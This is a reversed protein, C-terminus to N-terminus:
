LLYKLLLGSATGLYLCNRSLPNHKQNLINLHTSTICHHSPHMLKRVLFIRFDKSFFVEKMDQLLPLEKENEVCREGLFQVKWIMTFDANGASQVIFVDNKIRSCSVVSSLSEVHAFNPDDVSIQVMPQWAYLKLLDLCRSNTSSISNIASKMIKWLLISGREDGSILHDEVVSLSTVIATHAYFINQRGGPESNPLISWTYISGDERGAFMVRLPAYFAQSYIGLDFEEVHDEIDSGTKKGACSFMREISLEGSLKRNEPALLNALCVRGSADGIVLFLEAISLEASVISQIPVGRMVRSTMRASTSLNWIILFGNDYGVAIANLSYLVHVCLVDAKKQEGSLEFRLKNDYDDWCRLIGRQDVSCLPMEYTHMKKTVIGTKPHVEATDNMASVHLLPASHGPMEVCQEDIFLEYLIIEGTSPLLTLVSNRLKHAQLSAIIPLRLHSVTRSVGAKGIDSSALSIRAVAAEKAISVLDAHGSSDGYLIYDNLPLYTLSSYKGKLPHQISFFAIGKTADIIKSTGDNSLTVIFSQGPILLLHTIELSHLRYWTKHKVVPPHTASHDMMMMSATGASRYLEVDGESNAIYTMWNGFPSIARLLVASTYWSKSGSLVTMCEFLFYKTASKLELVTGSDSGRASSPSQAVSSRCYLRVTGDLSTSLMGDHPTVLIATIRGTHGTLTQVFNFNLGDYKNWIKITRDMSGSIICEHKYVNTGDSSRLADHSVVLCTVQSYHKEQKPFYVPPIEREAAKEGYNRQAISFYVICGSLCGAYLSDKVDKVNRYIDETDYVMCTFCVDRDDTSFRDKFDSKLLIM